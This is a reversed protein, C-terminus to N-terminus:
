PLPQATWTANLGFGFNREAAQAALVAERESRREGFAVTINGQLLKWSWIPLLTGNTGSRQRVTHTFETVDVSM